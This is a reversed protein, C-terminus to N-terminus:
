FRPRTRIVRNTSIMLTYHMIYVTLCSRINQTHRGHLRNMNNLVISQTIQILDKLSKNTIIHKWLIKQRRISHNQIFTESEKETSYM